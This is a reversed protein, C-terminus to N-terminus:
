FSGGVPRLNIIAVAIRGTALTSAVPEKPDNSAELIAFDALSTEKLLRQTRPEQKAESFSNGVPWIFADLTTTAVDNGAYPKPEEM